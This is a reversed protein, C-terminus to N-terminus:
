FSLLGTNPANLNHTQKNCPPMKCIILIVVNQVHKMKKGLFDFLIRRLSNQELM